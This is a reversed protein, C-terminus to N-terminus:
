GAHRAPVDPSDKFCQVSFIRRADSRFGTKKGCFKQGYAQNDGSMPHITVPDASRHMCAVLQYRGDFLVSGSFAMIRRGEFCRLEPVILRRQFIGGEPDAAVLRILKEQAEVANSKPDACSFVGSRFPLTSVSDGNSRPLM